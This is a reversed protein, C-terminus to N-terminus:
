FTSNKGKKFHHFLEFWFFFCVFYKNTFFEEFMHKIIIDLKNDSINTNGYTCYFVANALDLKLHPKIYHHFVGIRQIIRILFLKEFYM